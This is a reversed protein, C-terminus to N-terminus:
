RRTSTDSEAVSWAFQCATCHEFQIRDVVDIRDLIGQGGCKPCGGPRGWVETSPPAPVLHPRTRVDIIDSPDDQEDLSMGGNGRQEFREM